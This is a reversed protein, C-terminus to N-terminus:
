GFFALHMGLSKLPDALDTVGWTIRFRPLFIEVERHRLRSVCDDLVRADLRREFDDLGDRKDPLIVLMTVDCGRYELDVAKYGNTKLHRVTGTQHMLPASVSGGGPLHFPENRTLDSRFQITWLGKFYVANVLVLRTLPTLAGPGVLDTIRRRTVAEM